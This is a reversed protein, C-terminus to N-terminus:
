SEHLEYREIVEEKDQRLVSTAFGTMEASLDYTTSTVRAGEEAKPARGQVDQIAAESGEGGRSMEAIVVKKRNKGHTPPKVPKPHDRQSVWEILARSTSASAEVDTLEIQDTITGAPVETRSEDPASPQEEEAKVTPSDLTPDITAAAEEPDPEEESPTMFIPGPHAPPPENGSTELITMIGWLERTKGAWDGLTDDKDVEAGDASVKLQGM